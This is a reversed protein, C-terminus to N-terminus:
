NGKDETYAPQYGLNKNIMPWSLGSKKVIGVIQQNREWSIGTMEAAFIRWVYIYIYIQNTTEFM